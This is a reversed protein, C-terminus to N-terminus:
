RISIRISEFCVHCKVLRIFSFFVFDTLSDYLDIGECVKTDYLEVVFRIFMLFM